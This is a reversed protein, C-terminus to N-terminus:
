DSTLQELPSDSGSTIKSSVVFRNRGNQKAQYMAHDAHRLLQEGNGSDLPYVTIGMSGTVFAQHEGLLVPAAVSQLIRTAVRGCEEMNGVSNLLIVFEDGGLRAVTDHDRVANKLREAIIILLDDGAKHGLTDNVLKFGDLDMFCVALWHNQSAARNIAQELREHLLARNPLNTLPDFHAQKELSEQHQKVETIDSFVSIYHTINGEDDRLLSISSSIVYLRGDKHRNWFEGHWVGEAELAAHMAERTEDNRNEAGLM